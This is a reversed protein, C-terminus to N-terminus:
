EDKPKEEKNIYKFNSGNLGLAYNLQSVEYKTLESEGEVENTIKNIFIYTSIPTNDTQM